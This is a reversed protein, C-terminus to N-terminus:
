FKIRQISCPLILGTIACVKGICDIAVACSTKKALSCTPLITSVMASTEDKTFEGEILSQHDNMKSSPNDSILESQHLNEKKMMWM